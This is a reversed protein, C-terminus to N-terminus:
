RCSREGRACAFRVHLHDRHNPFHRIRGESHRRGRPHQFWEALQAATAGRRAAERYLPGQLAYDIYIAEVEGRRLWGELLAWQRRVDLEDPEIARLPCGQGGCGRRQYYTIDVDRGSQHSRHDDIAGGGRLSLDHVRARPGDPWRRAMRDFGRRLRAITRATAYAREPDRLVYAEHEGLRVSGAIAGCTPAGVSASSANAEASPVRVTAGERLRSPDIAPNAARVADLSLGYRDAIRTLTEGRRVTHAHIAEPEGADEHALATADAGELTLVQGAALRGNRVHPNDALVRDLTLGHRLAICLLTDGPVTRYRLGPGRTVTLEQGVRITDDDLDNLARLREVSVDYRAALAGLSDGERVVHVRLDAAGLSPLWLSSLGLVLAFRM